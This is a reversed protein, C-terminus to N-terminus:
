KMSDELARVFMFQCALDKFAEPCERKIKDKQVLPVHPSLRLGTAVAKVSSHTRVGALWSVWDDITNLPLTAKLARLDSIGARRLLAEYPRLGPPFSLHAQATQEAAHEDEDKIVIVERSLPGAM